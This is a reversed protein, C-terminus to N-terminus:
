PAVASSVLKMMQDQDLDSAIAYGVGRDRFLAVNYGHEQDFYVERNGIVTKRRTEIPMDNADFIFVSVKDGNVDYVLYAAPKDGVSSLRGGRLTCSAQHCLQPVRVPFDVKDVYWQKVQDNGGSVEIPTKKQHKAVLDAAVPSWQVKSIMFTAVLGVAAAAPMARVAWARWSLMPKSERAISRAVRNRLSAPAQERPAAARIAQKWEAQVRVKGRCLECDNLHGEFEARDTEAFEGDLYTDVFRSIGACRLAEKGSM